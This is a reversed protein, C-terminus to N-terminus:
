GAANGPRGVPIWRLHHNGGKRVLRGRDLHLRDIGAIEFRRQLPIRGHIPQGLDFCHWWALSGCTAAIAAAALGPM